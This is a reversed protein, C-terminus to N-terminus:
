PFSTIAMLRAIPLGLSLKYPLAGLPSSGNSAVDIYADKGFDNQLAVEQFVCGNREFFLQTEVVGEREIGRNKPIRPTMLIDTM